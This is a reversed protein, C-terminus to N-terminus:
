IEKIDLKTLTTNSQLIESIFSSNTINETVNLDTLTRNNKLIRILESKNIDNQSSNYNFYKFSTISTNNEFVKNFTDINVNSCYNKIILTTLTSNVILSNILKNKQETTITHKNINLHLSTLTTNKMLMNSIENIYDFTDYDGELDKLDLKTLTTNTKLYEFLKTFCENTYNLNPIDQFIFTDLKLTNLAKIQILNILNDIPINKFVNENTICDLYFNLHIKLLDNNSLAKIIANFCKPDPDISLNVKKITSNQQLASIIQQNDSTITLSYITLSIITKNNIILNCLIDLTDFRDKDIILTKITKQNILTDILLKNNNPHYDVMFNSLNLKQLTNTKNLFDIFLQLGKNSIFCNSVDLKIISDYYDINNLIIPFYSDNSLHIINHDTITLSKSNEYFTKINYKRKKNSKFLKDLFYTLLIFNHISVIIEFYNNFYEKDKSTIVYFVKNDFENIIKNFDIILEKKYKQVLKNILQKQELTLLTKLEDWRNIFNFGSLCRIFGLATNM